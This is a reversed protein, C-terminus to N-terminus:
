LPADRGQRPDEVAAATLILLDIDELDSARGMAIKTRSGAALLTSETIDTIHARLLRENEDVVVITDAIGAHAITATVAAGVTGAAGVVAVREPWRDISTTM